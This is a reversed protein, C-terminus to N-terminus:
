GRRATAAWQRMRLLILGLTKGTCTFGGSQYDRRVEEPARGKFGCWGCTQKGKSDLNSHIGVFEDARTIQAIVDDYNM